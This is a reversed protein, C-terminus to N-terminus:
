LISVLKAGSKLLARKSAVIPSIQAVKLCAPSGKLGRGGKEREGSSIRALSIRIVLIYLLNAPYSKDSM